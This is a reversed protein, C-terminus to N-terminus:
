LKLSQQGVSPKNERGSKFAPCILSPGCMMLAKNNPSCCGCSDVPQYPRKKESQRRSKTEIWSHQNRWAWERGGETESAWERWGGRMHPSHLGFASASGRCRDMWGDTLVAEISVLCRRWGRQSAALLPTSFFNLDLRMLKENGKCVSFSPSLSLNELDDPACPWPFRSHSDSKPTHVNFCAPDNKVSPILTKNGNRYCLLPTM